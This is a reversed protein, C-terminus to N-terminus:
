LPLFEEFHSDNFASRAAHVFEHALIEERSNGLYSGKRFGERLQISRIRSNEIWSVAGQWPALSRNSYFVPLFHPSFDFLAILHIQVWKLHSVPINCESQMRNTMAVRHIFDSESELPGPILGQRNLLLLEKDSLLCHGNMELKCNTSFDAIM